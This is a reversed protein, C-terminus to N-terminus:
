LLGKLYELIVLRPAVLAKVLDFLCAIFAVSFVGTVILAMIKPMILLPDEFDKNLDIKCFIKYSVLLFIIGFAFFITNSSIQWYIIEQLVLPIQEGATDIGKNAVDLAKALFQSLQNKLEENM